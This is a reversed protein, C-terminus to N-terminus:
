KQAIRKREEKLKEKIKVLQKQIADVAFDISEEFTKHNEEAFIDNGPINVRIEVVKDKIKSRGNDLKMFVEIDVIHDFYKELKSTKKELYSLLKQDARFHVTQIKTKMM